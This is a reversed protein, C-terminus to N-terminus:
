QKTAENHGLIFNGLIVFRHNCKSETMIKNYYGVGMFAVLLEEDMGRLGHGYVCVKRESNELSNTELHGTKTNM